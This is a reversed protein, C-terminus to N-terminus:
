LLLDEDDKYSINTYFIELPVGIFSLVTMSGCNHIIQHEVLVYVTHLASYSDCYSHYM